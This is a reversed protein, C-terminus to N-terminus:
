VALSPAHMVYLGPRDTITFLRLTPGDPLSADLEALPIRVGDVRQAWQEERTGSAPSAYPTASSALAAEICLALAIAGSALRARRAGSPKM